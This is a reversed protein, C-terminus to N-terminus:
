KYFFRTGELCLAYISRRIVNLKRRTEVLYSNIGESISSGALVVIAYAIVKKTM